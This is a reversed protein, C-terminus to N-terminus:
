AWMVEGPLWTAARAGWAGRVVGSTSSEGVSRVTGVFYWGRGWRALALLFGLALAACDQRIRGEDGNIGTFPVERSQRLQRSQDTYPIGVDMM